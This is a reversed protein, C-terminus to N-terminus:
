LYFNFRKIILDYIDNMVINFHKITIVQAVGCCYISDNDAQDVEVLVELSDFLYNLTM